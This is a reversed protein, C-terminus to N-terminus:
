ETSGAGPTSTGTANGGERRPEGGVNPVRERLVGAILDFLEAPQTKRFRPDMGVMFYNRSCGLNFPTVIETLLALLIDTKGERLFAVRPDVTGLLAHSRVQEANKTKKSM